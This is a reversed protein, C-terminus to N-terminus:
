ADSRTISAPAPHGHRWRRIRGGLFGDDADRAVRRWEWGRLRRRLLREAARHGQRRALDLAQSLHARSELDHPVGIALEEFRTVRPFTNAEIGLLFLLLMTRQCKECRGCNWAEDQWCVRLLDLVGPEAAIAELKQWRQMGAGHHILERAASGLLPDTLPHSGALFHERWHHGSAILTTRLGLVHAIAALGAGNWANWGLGFAHGVWRINSRVEVLPTGHGSLWSRNRRAAELAMPNDLQFDIGHVFIAHTIPTPPHLFTWTGDVGGSFFTGVGQGGTPPAIEAEIPVRSMRHHTLGPWFRVIGAWDQV